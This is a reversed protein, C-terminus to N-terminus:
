GTKILFNIEANRVRYTHLIQELERKQIQRFTKSTGESIFQIFRQGTKNM